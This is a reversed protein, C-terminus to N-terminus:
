TSWTYSVDESGRKVYMLINVTLDRDTPTAGGGDQVVDVSLLDGEALHVIDPTTPNGVNTGTAVTPRDGPNAFISTWAPLSQSPRSANVDAIVDAVAPTADVGLYARCSIIDALEFDCVWTFSGDVVTVPGPQVFTLLYPHVVRGAPLEGQVEAGDTLNIKPPAKIIQAQEPPGGIQTASGTDLFTVPTTPTAGQPNVDALFSRGWDSPSETRYVRWAWGDDITPTAGPYTVLVANNNSTRNVAPLSRDCDGEVSGDDVWIDNHAPTDIAEIWLYHMGSPSKRYANLGTAGPPLDPLIMSVSNAPNTGPIRIAASNIAKTEVTSADKYASFVYSYTGPGLSGTGTIATPSPAQPASIALTTDIPTMPSPGSENGNPDVVTFRYYYRRGSTMSGGTSQLTLSLGAVPTRDTGDDGTHRHEEAAWRLVRDILRRDADTFKFGDAQLSDGPGLINLHWRDTTRTM